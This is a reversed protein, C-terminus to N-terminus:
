RPNLWPFHCGLVWTRIYKLNNSEIAKRFEPSHNHNEAKLEVDVLLCIGTTERKGWNPKSANEWEAIVRDRLKNNAEM